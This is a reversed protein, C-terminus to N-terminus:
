KATTPLVGLECLMSPNCRACNPTSSPSLRSCRCFFDKMGPHVPLIDGPTIRQVMPLISTASPHGGNDIRDFSYWGGRGSGMQVLWPWIREIRAKITIAHTDTSIPKPIPSDGAMDLCQEDDLAKYIM